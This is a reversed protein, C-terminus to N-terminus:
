SYRRQGQSWAAPLRMAESAPATVRLGRSSGGPREPAPATPNTSAAAGPTAGARLSDKLGDAGAVVDMVQAGSMVMVFVAHAGALDALGAAPVGGLEALMRGREPRLDCGSVAFGAAILNKALGLGMNGLGVVAVNKM